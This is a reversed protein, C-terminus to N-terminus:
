KSSSWARKTSGAVASFATVTPPKGAMLGCAALLLARFEDLVPGDGACAVGEGECPRTRSDVAGDLGVKDLMGAVQCNNPQGAAGDITSKADDRRVAAKGAAVSEPFLDAGAEGRWSDGM